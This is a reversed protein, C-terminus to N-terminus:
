SLGLLLATKFSNLSAFSIEEIKLSFLMVAFGSKTKFAINADKFLLYDHLILLLWITDIYFNCFFYSFATIGVKGYDGVRMGFKYNIKYVYHGSCRFTFDFRSNYKSRLM